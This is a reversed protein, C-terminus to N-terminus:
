KACTSPTTVSAASSRNRSPTSSFSPGVRGALARPTASGAHSQGRTGGILTRFDTGSPHISSTIRSPRLRWTRRIVAATPSGVSRSIRAAIPGWVSSPRAGPV